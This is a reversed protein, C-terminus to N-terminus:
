QGQFNSSIRQIAEPATGGEVEGIEALTRGQADIALTRGVIVPIFSVVPDRVGIVRIRVGIVPIRHNLAPLLGSVYKM